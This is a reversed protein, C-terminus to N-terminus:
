VSVTKDIYKNSEDPVNGVDAAATRTRRGFRSIPGVASKGFPCSGKAKGAQGFSGSPPTVRSEVWVSNEM